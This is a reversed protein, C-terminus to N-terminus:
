LERNDRLGLVTIITHFAEIIKEMTAASYVATMYKRLQEELHFVPSERIMDLAVTKTVDYQIRTATSTPSTKKRQSNTHTM